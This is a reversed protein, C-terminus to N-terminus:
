RLPLRLVVPESLVAGPRLNGADDYQEWQSNAVYLFDDGALAGITPQDAIPLNRDLLDVRTIGLGDRSLAMAIVRPARVGNQIGILSRGHRALGDIGLVTAGHPAALPRVARTRRDIALVGHSYDAVYLHRGDSSEAVGQPSRLLSDEAFVELVDGQSPVRYIVAKRSDSVFVEGDAAAYVDGPVHAGAGSPFTLRRVLRGSARDFAHVAAALSDGSTYGEMQPIAASTVWVLRGDASVATALAGLLGDRASPVFDKAAGGKGIRVVKRRHVSAVYCNGDRACSIGEPFLGADAIRFAVQSRARPQLNAAARTAAAHLEPRSRVPAFDDDTAIDAGLGLDAYAGLWRAAEVADGSRASLAALGYVYAAQMPWAARARAAHARAVPFSDHRYAQMAARWATRAVRASDLTSSRDPLPRVATPSPVFAAIAAAAARQLVATQAVPIELESSGVTLRGPLGLPSTGTIGAYIVLAAAYSGAPTPHLGDPLYLELDPNERWAARWAEGAPLFLGDVDSAALQYTERVRDFLEPQSAFPWVMYLAPRGGSARVLPAFGAMGDRLAIRGDESASPGHQFIVIDWRETTLLRSATGEALHDVLSAGGRVVSHVDLPVDRARGFAAVIGPLDNYATLSNGVFLVRLPPAPETTAACAFALAALALASRRARLPM